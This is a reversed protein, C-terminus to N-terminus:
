GVSTSTAREYPSFEAVGILWAFSSWDGTRLAQERADRLVADTVAYYNVRRSPPPKGRAAM